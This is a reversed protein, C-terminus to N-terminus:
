FPKRNRTILYQRYNDRVRNLIRPELRDRKKTCGDLLIIERTDQIIYFIRNGFRIRLEWIKGEVHKAVPEPLLVGWQQLQHIAKETAALQRRDAISKLYEEVPARGNGRLFYYVKYSGPPFRTLGTYLM